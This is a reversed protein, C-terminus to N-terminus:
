IEKREYPFKIWCNEPMEEVYHTILESKRKTYLVATKMKPSFHFSLYIGTEMITKGTDFLDDVLLIEKSEKLIKLNSVGEAIELDEQKQGEYSSASIISLPINLQESIITAPINGGRSVGLIVDPKRNKIKSILIDIDQLYKKWSIDVIPSM